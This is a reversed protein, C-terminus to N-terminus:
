ILTSTLPPSLFYPLVLASQEPPPSSLDNFVAQPASSLVAPTPDPRPSSPRRRTQDPLPRGADPGTPSLVAPTPDPRPSSPRHRPSSPRRRTRDPLPRDADPGTPSLVAPTPGPRPLSPSAAPRVAAPAAAPGSQQVCRDGSARGPEGRGASPRGAAAAVARGAATLPAGVTRAAAPGEEERGSLGRRGGCVPLM